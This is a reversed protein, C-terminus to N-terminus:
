DVDSQNSQAIYSILELFRGGRKTSILQETSHFDLVSYLKFLNQSKYVGSLIETKTCGLSMLLEFYGLFEILEQRNITLLNIEFLVPFIERSNAEKALFLIHKQGSEAIAITFPPEPPNVLWERIQPRTPLDTVRDGEIKPYSEKESILWSWCRGFLLVEKQSHPNYYKLRLPIVYHCRDCLKDSTPSKASSHATFSDKLIGEKPKTAPISGCLYCSDKIKTDSTVDSV